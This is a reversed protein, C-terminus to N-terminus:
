LVMLYALPAVSSSLKTDDVSLSMQVRGQMAPLALECVVFWCCRAQRAHRLQWTSRFEVRPYTYCISGALIDHKNGIRRRDSALSYLGHEAGMDPHIHYCYVQDTVELLAWAQVQLLVVFLIMRGRESGFCVALLQRRNQLGSRSMKSIVFPASSGCATFHRLM